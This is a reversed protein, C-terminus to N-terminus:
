LKSVFFCIVVFLISLMLVNCAHYNYFRNIVSDVTQTPSLSGPVGITRNRGMAVHNLVLTIWTIVEKRMEKEWILLNLRWGSLKLRDSGAAFATVYYTSQTWIYGRM